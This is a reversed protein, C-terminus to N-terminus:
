SGVLLGCYGLSPLYLLREAVTTALPVLLHSAPLFTVVMWSICTVRGLARRRTCSTYDSPACSSSAFPASASGRASSGAGSASSSRAPLSGHIPEGEGGAGRFGAGGGGGGGGDADEPARSSALRWLDHACLAVLVAYFCAPLALRRDALGSAAPICDFSYDASLATPWLLLRGYVGHVVAFSLLREAAGDLYYFANDVRSFEPGFRDGTLCKRAVLIACFIVAFAAIRSAARQRAHHWPAGANAPVRHARDAHLMIVTQAISFLLVTAGTEKCLTAMVSLVGALATPGGKAERWPARAACGHIKAGIGSAGAETQTGGQADDQTHEGGTYSRPSKRPHRDASPSRREKEWAVSAGRECTLRVAHRGVPRERRQGGDECRGDESACERQRPATDHMRERKDGDEFLQPLALVSLM